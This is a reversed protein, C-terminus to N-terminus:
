VATEPQPVYPQGRFRPLNGFRNACTSTTRDCGKFVTFSDGATPAVPLPYSLQLEGSSQVKVTRRLGSNAGSNFQIEGLRYQDGAGVGCKILARTSGAQASLNLAHTAKNVGCRASYVTNLCGPQYVDVPVQTDLVEIVSRVTLKASIGTVEVAGVRGEALHVLGVPQSLHDPSLAKQLLVMAGDLVGQRAAQLVPVGLVSTAGDDFLTVETTSVEIGLGVTIGDREVVPGLAWTAEGFAVERDGAAWRYVGGGRLTLTMVEDFHVSAGSLLLDAAAQTTTKM